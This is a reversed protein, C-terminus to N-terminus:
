TSRTKRSVYRFCLRGTDHCGYLHALPEHSRPRSRLPCRRRPCSIVVKLHAIEPLVATNEFHRTFPTPTSGGGYEHGVSLGIQKKETSGNVYYADLNWTCSSPACEGNLDLDYSALGTETNVSWENVTVSLEAAYAPTAALIPLM